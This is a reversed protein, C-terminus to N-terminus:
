STAEDKKLKPRVLEYQGEIMIDVASQAPPPLSRYKLILEKEHASLDLSNSPVNWSSVMDKVDRHESKGILWMPNVHLANAIAAIIPIKINKIDGNEYRSITSPYVHILASLENAKLGASERASKIRRGIEKPDLDIYSSM